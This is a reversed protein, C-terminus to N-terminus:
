FRDITFDFPGMVDGTGTGATVTFFFNLDTENLSGVTNSITTLAIIAPTGGATHGTFTGNLVKSASDWQLIAELYFNFKLAGGTAIAGTTAILTGASTATVGALFKAQTCHYIKLTINESQASNIQGNLRVRFPRGVDLVGGNVDGALAPVVLWNAAIQSPSPLSPYVGAAPIVYGTETSGATWAQATLNQFGAFTNMNAM